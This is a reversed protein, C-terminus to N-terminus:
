GIHLLNRVVLSAMEPSHELRRLCYQYWQRGYPVYLRVKLGMRLLEEQLAARPVGLLMQVEFSEAGRGQERALALARRIVKEDHTALAVYQGNAWMETLLELMRAKMSPKDQLAIQPSERYIGICLRVNPKLDALRRVDETSRFLRSQLVVGIRPFRKVFRRYFGLTSDVTRHDEMDFRVFQDCAAARELLIKLNEACLADDIGQGLASLKISINAFPCRSLDDLVALYEDLFARTEGAVTVAEGLVDVTGHLRKEAHLRRVLAVADARSEGAIYPGALKRVIPKPALRVLRGQLRQFLSKEDEEGAPPAGRAPEQGPTSPEALAPAAGVDTATSPTM